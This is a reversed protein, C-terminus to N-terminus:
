LTEEFEVRVRTKFSGYEFKIKTIRGFDFTEKLQRISALFEVDDTSTDDDEIILHDSLQEAIRM